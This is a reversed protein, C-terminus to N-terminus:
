LALRGALHAARGELVDTHALSCAFANLTDELEPAATASGVAGHTALTELAAAVTIDLDVAAARAMEPLHTLDHRQRALSRLLVFIIQVDGVRKQIESPNFEGVEFKSSEILGQVEEVKLAIRRRWADVTPPPVSPPASRTGTRALEALLHLMEALRARLADR